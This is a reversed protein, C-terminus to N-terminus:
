SRIVDMVQPQLKEALSGTVMDDPMGVVGLLECKREPRGVGDPVELRVVKAGDLMLGAASLGSVRNLFCVSASAMELFSGALYRREPDEGDVEDGAPLCSCSESLM